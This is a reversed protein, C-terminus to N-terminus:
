TRDWDDPLYRGLETVIRNAEEEGVAIGFRHTAGRYDFAVSRLRPVVRGPAARRLHVDEDASEARLRSIEHLQFAKSRGIGIGLLEWRTVLAGHAISIVERGAFMYAIVVLPLVGGVTWGALWVLLFLQAPLFGSFRLLTRLVHVEVAAWACIWLSLFIIVPWARLAPIIIRPGHADAEFRARPAVTSLAPM